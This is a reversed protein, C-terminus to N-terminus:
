GVHYMLRGPYDPYPPYSNSNKEEAHGNPFLLSGFITSEGVTIAVSVVYVSSVAM